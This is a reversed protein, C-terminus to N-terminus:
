GMDSCLIINVPSVHEQVRKLRASIRTSTSPTMGSAGSAVGTSPDRSPQFTDPVCIVRSHRLMSNQKAVRLGTHLPAPVMLPTAFSAVLRAGM